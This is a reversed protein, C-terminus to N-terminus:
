LLEEVREVLLEAEDVAIAQLTGLLRDREELLRHLDIGGVLLSLRDEGLEERAHALGVARHHDRDLPHLAIREVGLRIGRQEIEEDLLARTIAREADRRRHAEEAHVM